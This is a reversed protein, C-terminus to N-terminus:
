RGRARRFVHRHLGLRENAEVLTGSAYRTIVSGTPTTTRPGVIRLSPVRNGSPSGYLRGPTPDNDPVHAMLAEIQAEAEGATKAEAVVPAWYHEPLIPMFALGFQWVSLGPTQPNGEADTSKFFVKIRHSDIAEIRDLFAPDVVSGFNGSIGMELVTHATFIVDDATLEEGDSWLIGARIPVETTWYETGDVTEKTLDTPFDAAVGPVWEFNQDSYGFLAGTWGSLVYQTWVSGGPGGYYNWFNRTIPEEFIGMSYIQPSAEEVPAEVAEEVAAAEPEALPQQACAALAVAMFAALVFIAARM